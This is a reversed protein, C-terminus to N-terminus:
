MDFARRTEIPRQQITQEFNGQRWGAQARQPAVLCTSGGGAWLWTTVQVRLKACACVSVHVAAVSGGAARV